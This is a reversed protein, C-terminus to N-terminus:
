VMGMPSLGKPQGLIEAMVVAQKMPSLHSLNLAFGQQGQSVTQRNEIVQLPERVSVPQSATEALSAANNVQAPPATKKRPKGASKAAPAATVSRTVLAGAAEEKEEFHLPQVRPRQPPPPPAKKKKRAEFITRAIMVAMFILIFIINSSSGFM